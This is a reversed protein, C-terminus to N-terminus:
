PTRRNTFDLAMAAFLRVLAMQPHPDKRRPLSPRAPQRAATTPTLTRAWAWMGRRLFLLLGSRAEPPVPEGLAARRLAEYRCAIPVPYSSGAASKEV